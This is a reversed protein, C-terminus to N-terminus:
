WDDLPSEQTNEHPPPAPSPDPPPEPPAYFKQQAAELRVRSLSDQALEMIGTLSGLDGNEVLTDLWDAFISEPHPHAQPMLRWRRLTWDYYLLDGRYAYPRPLGSLLTGLMGRDCGGVVLSGVFRLEAEQAEDLVLAEEPSFSLWGDEFLKLAAWWNLGLQDCVERPTSPFLLQQATAVRALQPSDDQLNPLMTLIALAIRCCIDTTCFVGNWASFLRAAARL